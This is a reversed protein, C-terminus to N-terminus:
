EYWIEDPIIDSNSVTNKSIKINWENIFREIYNVLEVDHKSNVIFIRQNGLVKNVAIDLMLEEKLQDMFDFMLLKFCINYKDLTVWVESEDGKNKLKIKLGNNKFWKTNKNSKEINM